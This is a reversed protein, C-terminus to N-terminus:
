EDLNGRWSTLHDYDVVEYDWGPPLNSVDQVAGDWVEIRITGAQPAAVFVHSCNSSHFNCTMGRFMRTPECTCEKTCGFSTFSGDPCLYRCGGTCAARQAVAEHQFLLLGGVLSALSLAGKGTLGLFGRRSQGASTAVTEAYRGIKEFM